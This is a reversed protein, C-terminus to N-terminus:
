TWGNRELQLLLEAEEDPTMPVYDDPPQEALQAARFAWDARHSGSNAGYRMWRLNTAVNRRSDFDVHDVSHPLGTPKPGHWAECVLQHVQVQLQVGAVRGLKVKQYRGSGAQQPKLVHGTKRNRIRGDFHVEYRDDRTCVRWGALLALATPCM